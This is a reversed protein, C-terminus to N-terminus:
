YLNRHLGLSPFSPSVFVGRNNGMGSAVGPVLKRPGWSDPVLESVIALFLTLCAAILSCGYLRSLVLRWM